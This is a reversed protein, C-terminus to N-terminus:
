VDIEVGTVLIDTGSISGDAMYWLREGFISSVSVTNGNINANLGEVPFVLLRKGASPTYTASGSLQINILSGFDPVPRYVLLSDDFKSTVTLGSKLFALGGPNGSSTNLVTEGNSTLLRNGIYGYVAIDNPVTFSDGDAIEVHNFGLEGNLDYVTTGRSDSADTIEIDGGTHVPTYYRMETGFTNATHSKSFNSSTFQLSSNGNDTSQILYSGSGNLTKTSGDSVFGLVDVNPNALTNTSVAFNIGGGGFDWGIGM